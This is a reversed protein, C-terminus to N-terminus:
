LNLTEIIKELDEKKQLGIVKNCVKGDRFFIITPINRVGYEKALDTNEDVNVKIIQVDKKESSLSDLIPLQMKCPGCWPAWFDVISIKDSAILNTFNESTGEFNNEM